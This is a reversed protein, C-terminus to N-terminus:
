MYNANRRGINVIQQEGADTDLYEQVEDENKVVFVQVPRSDSSQGDTARVGLRGQSDRGLPFLGEAGAEGGLALGGNSMPFVTPGSLIDGKAMQKVSSGNLVLGNAAMSVTGGSGFLAALGGGFINGIGKAFGVAIGAVGGLISAGIEKMADGTKGKLTDLLPTTIVDEYMLKLVDTALNRLENKLIAGIEKTDDLMATLPSRIVDAASREIADLYAETAERQKDTEEKLDRNSELEARYKEVLEESKDGAIVKAAAELELIDIAREREDNTLGILKREEELADFLDKIKAQAEKKSILDQISKLEGKYMVILQEAGETSAAKAIAEFQLGAVYLEREKTSMGLLKTELKIAQFAKTTAIGAKKQAETLQPFANAAKAAAEAQEELVSWHPVVLAAVERRKEFEAIMIRFADTIGQIKAAGGETEVLLKAIGFDIKEKDMLKIIKLYKELEATNAKLNDTLTSFGALWDRILPVFAEGIDRKLGQIMERNKALQQATTDAIKGFATLRAGANEAMEGLDRMHGTQDQVLASLGTIARVNPAIAARQEATANVLKRVAGTLGITRLTATNLELGLEKAAKISDTTPSLFTTLIAKLSTVAIDAQIGSRTMTALAAGVEELSLGSVAALSAVKGLSGALEGFTLKGRRVITFLIDTAYGAETAALGYSNLVTTVVDAATGADTMGAIAAQTSIELVDIAKSADVSASLIDYLGKALVGTSQGYKVALKSIQRNYAPLFKMAQESLMTSVNALSLEFAAFEKVSSVALRFGKYAVGLGVLGVAVNKVQSGLGGLAKDTKRISTNTNRAGRQMKKVSEDFQQAGQKAKRANIAVSLSPM